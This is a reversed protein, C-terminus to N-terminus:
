RLYNLNNEDNENPYKLKFHYDLGWHTIEPRGTGLSDTPM